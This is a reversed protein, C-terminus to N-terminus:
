TLNPMLSVWGGTCGAGRDRSPRDHVTPVPAQTKAPLQVLNPVETAAM